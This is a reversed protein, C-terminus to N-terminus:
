LKLKKTYYIITVYVNLLLTNYQLTYYVITVNYTKDITSYSIYYVLRNPTGLM